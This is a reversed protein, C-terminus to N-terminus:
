YSSSNKFVFRKQMTYNWFVAVFIAIITKVIMVLQLSAREGSGFGEIISIVLVNGLTNLLISGAWVLSYRLAIRRKSTEQSKFTWRYNIVCNVVGGTLAGLFTSVVLPMGLVQYLFATLLFDCATAVIASFQAKLFLLKM